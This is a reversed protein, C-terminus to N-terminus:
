KPSNKKKENKSMGAMYDPNKGHIRILDKKAADSLPAKNFFEPLRPNGTVVHDEGFHEKDFFTGATLSYKRELDRNQFEPNREVEIGLEKILAKAGYSYPFPTAIGMTGGYGIFTRGQYHFENRKARPRSITTITSSSFRPKLGLALPLFYAASLGSIGGGVVVLDYEERIERLPFQFQAYKGQRIPDFIDM